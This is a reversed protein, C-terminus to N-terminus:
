PAQSWVPHINAPPAQEGGLAFENVVVVCGKQGCIGDGLMALRSEQRDVPQLSRRQQSRKLLPM